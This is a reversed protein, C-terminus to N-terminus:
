INIAQKCDEKKHLAAYNRKELTNERGLQQVRQLGRKSNENSPHTLSSVM